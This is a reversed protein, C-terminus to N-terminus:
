LERGGISIKCLIRRWLGSIKVLNSPKHGQDSGTNNDMRLILYRIDVTPM